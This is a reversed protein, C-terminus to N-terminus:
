TVWCRSRRKACCGSGDIPVVTTSLFTLRRTSTSYAWNVLNQFEGEFEGVNDIRVARIGVQEPTIYTVIYSELAAATEISSKVKLSKRVKFRSFDDVIMMVYRIECASESEMPDALDVCLLAARESTRNDTTRSSPSTREIFIGYNLRGIERLTPAEAQSLPGAHPSM